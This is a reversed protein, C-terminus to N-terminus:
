VQFIRIMRNLYLLYIIQLILGVTQLIGVIITTISTANMELAALAIVAVVSVLSTLVGVIIEWNFLSHWSRSLRPDTEAVMDSHGSYEQYGALLSFVSATLTFIASPILLSNILTLGLTVTNFIAAKKYRGNVPALQFLSIIVGLTIARSVWVTFDASIPLYSILSVAIAAIHVYFLVQLWKVLLLEHSEPEAPINNTEYNGDM